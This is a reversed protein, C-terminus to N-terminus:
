FHNRRGMDFRLISSFRFHKYVIGKPNNAYINGFGKKDQKSLKLAEYDSGPM